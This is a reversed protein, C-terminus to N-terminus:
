RVGRREGGVGQFRERRQGVTYLSVKTGQYISGPVHTRGMSKGAKNKRKQTKAQIGGGGPLGRQDRSLTM